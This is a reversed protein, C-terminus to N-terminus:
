KKIKWLMMGDAFYYEVENRRHLYTLYAKITNQTLVFNVLNATMGLRAYLKKTLMEVSVPEACFERIMDITELTAKRNLAITEAYDDPMPEHAPIFKVDQMNELTDLTELTRAVDFLPPCYPKKLVEACTLADGIFCVNDATKVGVHSFSHGDLSVIELGEPLVLESLGQSLKAQRVNM